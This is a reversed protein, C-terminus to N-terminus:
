HETYLIFSLIQLNWRKRKILIQITLLTPIVHVYLGNKTPKGGLYRFDCLSFFLDLTLHHFNDLACTIGHLDFWISNVLGVDNYYGSSKTRIGIDVNRITM